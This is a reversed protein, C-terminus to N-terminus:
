EGQLFYAFLMKLFSLYFTQLLLMNACCSRLLGIIVAGIPVMRLLPLLPLLRRLPGHEWYHSSPCQPGRRRPGLLATPLRSRCASCLPGSPIGSALRCFLVATPEAPLVQLKSCPGSSFATTGQSTWFAPQDEPFTNENKLFSVLILGSLYM